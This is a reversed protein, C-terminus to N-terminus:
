QTFDEVFTIKMTYLLTHLIQGKVRHRSDLTDWTVVHVDELTLNIASSNTNKEYYTSTFIGNYANFM